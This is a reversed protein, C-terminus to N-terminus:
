ADEMLGLEALTERTVQVVSNDECAGIIWEALELLKRAPM